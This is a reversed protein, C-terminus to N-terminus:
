NLRNLIQNLQNQIMDFRGGFDNRLDGVENRLNGVENRVDGVENQLDNLNNEIEDMRNNLIFMEPINGIRNSARLNEITLNINGKIQLCELAIIRAVELNNPINSNLGLLRCAERRAEQANAGNGNFRPPWAGPLIVENGQNILVLVQIALNELGTLLNLSGIVNAM